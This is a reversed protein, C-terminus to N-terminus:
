TGMTAQVHDIHLSGTEKERKREVETWREMKGQRLTGWRERGKEEEVEIRDSEGRSYAGSTCIKMQLAWFLSAINTHQTTHRHIDTLINTHRSLQKLHSIMLAQITVEYLSKSITKM